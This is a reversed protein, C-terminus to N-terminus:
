WTVVATSSVKQRGGLAEIGQPVAFQGGFVIGDVCTGLISVPGGPKEEPLHRGTM